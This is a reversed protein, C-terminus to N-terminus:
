CASYEFSATNCCFVFLCTVVLDCPRKTTYSVSNSSVDDDARCGQTPKPKRILRYKNLTLKNTKKLSELAAATFEESPSVYLFCPFYHCDENPKV